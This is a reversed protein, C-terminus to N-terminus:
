DPEDPVLVRLSRPSIGIRVPTEGIVEGDGQVPLPRGSRIRVEMEAPRCDYDPLREPDGALAGALLRLYSGLTASRVICVHVRGDDPRINPSLRLEKERAFANGSGLPLIGLPVPGHLLGNAVASV